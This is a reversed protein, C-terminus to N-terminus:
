GAGKEPTLEVRIRRSTRLRWERAPPGAAVRYGKPAIVRVSAFDPRVGGQPWLVLELDPEAPDYRWADPWRYALRVTRTEGADVDLIQWAVPYAYERGTFFNSTRRGLMLARPESGRPLLFSLMMRSIGFPLDRRLPRVLVTSDEPAENILAVTTTVRASGDPLLRLRTAVHRKLFFDVKNAAFNNNFVLQVNPGARRYDGDIGLEALRRAALPDNSYIKLHQETAATGLGRALPGVEVEASELRTWLQDILGRLYENQVREKLDFHRYIDHLLIRRATFRTIERHWGPARLPGTGRTMEGVALPDLAIVGDLQEGSLKHYMRLLVRSSAPFSPTLNASRIEELGLFRGYLGAFWRPGSVSGRFREVLEEIAGVHELHLRGNDAALIGYVGILGGGGRAESPSQLALFYRKPAVAGLFPPLLEAVSRARAVGDGARQLRREARRVATVVPGIDPNVDRLSAATESVDEELAALDDGLVSVVDLQVMGDRYLAGFLGHEAAEGDLTSFLTDLAGRAITAAGDSLADLADLDDRAGIGELLRLSPRDLRTGALDAATAARELHHIAAVADSRSVAVVAAHLESSSRAMAIAYSSGAYLLDLLGVAAAASVFLATRRVEPPRRM